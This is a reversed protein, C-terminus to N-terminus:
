QCSKEEVLRSKERKLESEYNFLGAFREGLNQEKLIGVVQRAHDEHNTTAEIYECRGLSGLSGHDNLRNITNQVGTLWEFKGGDEDCSLACIDRLHSLIKTTKLLQLEDLTPGEDSEDSQSTTTLAADNDTKPTKSSCSGSNETSSNDSGADPDQRKRKQHLGGREKKQDLEAKIPEPSTTSDRNIV